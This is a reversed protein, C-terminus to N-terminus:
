LVNFFILKINKFIFYLKLVCIFVFSSLEWVGVVVM